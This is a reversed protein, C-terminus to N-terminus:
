GAFKVIADRKSTTDFLTIRRAHNQREQSIVRNKTENGGGQGGKTTAQKGHTVIKSKNSVIEEFSAFDKVIVIKNLFVMSLRFSHVCFM